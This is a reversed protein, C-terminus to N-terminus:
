INRKLVILHDIISVIPTERYCKKLLKVYGIKLISTNNKLNQDASHRIAVLPLKCQAEDRLKTM